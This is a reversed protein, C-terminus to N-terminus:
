KNELIFQRMMNLANMATLQINKQRDFRFHFLKTIIKSKNGVAIWVTGVPKEPTGGSPGMVGSVAITYSTNMKNLLGVAMERVVEESVAGHNILTDNKVGLLNEKAQYSYTVMGGDFYASAGPIGTLLHAIYGGTCSEATAITENRDLLLEAVVKEMSEDENTVMYEKVQEQLQSFLLDMEGTIKEKNMGTSTLRLRVIGYNPLYALKIHAPLATEFEQIKDALTSEGIGYTVLTRHCIFPLTFIKTLEPIINEEMLGKMEYPVGPM